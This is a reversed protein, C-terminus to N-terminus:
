AEIKKLCAATLPGENEMREFYCFRKIGAKKLQLTQLAVAPQGLRTRIKYNSVFGNWRINLM